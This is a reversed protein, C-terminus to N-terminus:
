DLLGCEMALKKIAEERTLGERIHREMKRDVLHKGRGYSRNYVEVLREYLAEVSPPAKKRMVRKVYYNHDYYFLVIQCFQCRVGGFNVSIIGEGLKDESEGWGKREPFIWYVGVYKLGAAVVRLTGKEMKRGCIPCRVPLDVM